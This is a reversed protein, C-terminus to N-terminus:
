LRGILNDPKRGASKSVKQGVLGVNHIARRVQQGESRSVKQSTSRDVSM